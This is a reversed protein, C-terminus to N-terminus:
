QFLLEHTSMDSWESVYDSYRDLWVKNKRKATAHMAFFSCIDIKYDHTQVSRPEFVRNIVSSVLVSVVVGSIHNM